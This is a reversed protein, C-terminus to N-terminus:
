LRMQFWELPQTNNSPHFLRRWCDDWTTAQWTAGQWTIHQWVPYTRSEGLSDNVMTELSSSQIRWIWAGSTNHCIEGGLVMAILCISQLFDGVYVYGLLLHCPVVSSNKPIRMIQRIIDQEWISDGNKRCCRHRHREHQSADFLPAYPADFSLWIILPDLLFWICGPLSDCFYQRHLPYLMASSLSKPCM